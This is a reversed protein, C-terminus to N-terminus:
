DPVQNFERIEIADITVNGQELAANPGQLINLGDILDAGVRLDRFSGANVGPGPQSTLLPMRTTLPVAPAFEPRISRNLPSHIILNYWGGNTQGVRRDPNLTGIGPLSQNAIAANGVLPNTGIAWAGGIQL